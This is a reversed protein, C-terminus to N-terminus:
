LKGQEDVAVTVIKLLMGTMCLTLMGVARGNASSKYSMATLFMLNTPVVTSPTTQMCM